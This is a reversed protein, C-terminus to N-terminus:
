RKDIVSASLSPEPACTFKAGATGAPPILWHCRSTARAIGHHILRQVEQDLLADYHDAGCDAWRGALAFLQNRYDSRAGVPFAGALIVTRAVAGGARQFARIKMRSGPGALPLLPKLASEAIQFTAMSDVLVLVDGGEELGERALRALVEPDLHHVQVPVPQPKPALSTAPREMNVQGRIVSFAADILLQHGRFGEVLAVRTAMSVRFETDFHRLVQNSSGQTAFAAQLPEGAVALTNPLQDDLGTTVARRKFESLLGRIFDAGASTTDQADDVLLHRFRELAASPIQRLNAAHREAFLDQARNATMLTPKGRLMQREFEVWFHGLAEFFMADPDGQLFNLRGVTQAVGMGLNEVLTGVGYFASVLPVPEPEGRLQYDFHPRSTPLARLANALQRARQYSDLYIVPKDLYAQIITKKVECEKYMEIRTGPGRTLYRDESRDFGLLIYADLRPVFGNLSFECGRVVVRHRNPNIGELPWSEAKKWLAELKECLDTDCQSLQWGIAARKVVDPHDVEIPRLILSQRFLGVVLDAVRANSRYLEDLASDLHKTQSPNLRTDFPKIDFETRKELQEFLGADQLGPLTRILNIAAAVPTTICRQIDEASFECGFQRSLGQLRRAADEKEEKGAVLLRISTLPQKLYKHLFILRLDLVLSKGTGGQGTVQLGRSPAGIAKWQSPTPQQDSPLMTAADRQMAELAGSLMPLRGEDILVQDIRPASVSRERLDRIELMVQPAEAELARQLKEAEERGDVVGKKQGEEWSQEHRASLLDLGFALLEGLTRKWGPLSDVPILDTDHPSIPTPM